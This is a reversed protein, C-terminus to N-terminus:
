RLTVEESISGRVLKQINGRDQYELTKKEKYREYYNYNNEQQKINIVRISSIVRFEVLASVREPKRMTADEGVVPNSPCFAPLFSSTRSHISAYLYIECLFMESGLQRELQLSNSMVVHSFCSYTRINSGNM